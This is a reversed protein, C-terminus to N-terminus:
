SHLGLVCSTDIHEFSASACCKFSLNWILICARILGSKQSIIDTNCCSLTVSHVWSGDTVPFTKYKIIHLSMKLLLKLDWHCFSCIGFNLISQLTLLWDTVVICYLTEKSFTLIVECRVCSKMCCSRIKKIVIKGNPYLDFLNNLETNKKFRKVNVFSSSWLFSLHSCELPLSCFIAIEIEANEKTIQWTISISIKLRLSLVITILWVCVHIM